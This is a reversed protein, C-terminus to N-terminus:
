RKKASTGAIRLVALSMPPVELEMEAPVQVTWSKPQVVPPVGFKNETMPDGTLVTLTGSTSIKPIDKLKLQIKVPQTSRSVVKVILDGSKSDRVTSCALDNGEATLTSDLYADGSNHMFLRQVEYNVSPSVQVNDFYILDPRWQTHGQKALLPAYSSLAVVDGNRELSTLYAAESLAARLTNERGNEHAAYEGAYVKSESRDYSDYRRLNDWFWTPPVYYHEDVYAVREKRAFKWGNDFDEGSAFPGVTGILKLRPYKAKVADHIMKFRVEFEPTIAEENGIALYELNFPKPHGAEARVKGWKSKVSGNAYEVLDLVDQIYAKMDAMPIGEQGKGWNTDTNQCSVGSPVVPLPKAGIDECFQFYEFYGLGMSQYYGWNNGMARRTEVPGVTQKWDYMASTGLWGGHVICGGPFRIFKPKLDAISQALDARLGNPRNRFTKQPFLSVVDLGVTGTGSATVVLRAHDTSSSPTLTVKQHKWDTIPAEMKSSAIVKGDPLELRVEMPRVVGSLLCTFVSFDYSENAKLVIGGFGENALSVTGKAVHLAAYHPNNAHLPNGWRLNVRGESGQGKEFRWGTLGNWDRNVVSTYEFSRNQLLEAYLGGDAAYNIDEFFIGFLDPSIPKANGSIILTAVLPLSM